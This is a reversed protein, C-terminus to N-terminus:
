TEIEDKSNERSTVQEVYGDDDYIDSFSPGENSSIPQSKVYVKIKQLAQYRKGWNQMVVMMM